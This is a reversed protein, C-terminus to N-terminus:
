SNTIKKSIIYILVKLVEHELVTCSYFFIRARAYSDYKSFIKGDLSILIKCLVLQSLNISAM